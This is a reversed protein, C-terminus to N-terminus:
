SVKKNRENKVREYLAILKKAEKKWNYKKEVCKRGNKGLTRALEVNKYLMIVAEALKRHDGSPIVIGCKCEGVIRKLPDCDTVIVPKKLAM